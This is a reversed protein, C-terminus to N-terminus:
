VRAELRVSGMLGCCCCALCDPRTRTVLDWVVHDALVKGALRCSGCLGPEALLDLLAMCPCALGAGPGAAPVAPDDCVQRAVKGCRCWGLGCWTVYGQRHPSARCSRVSRASGAHQVAAGQAARLGAALM